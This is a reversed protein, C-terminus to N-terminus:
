MVVMMGNKMLIISKLLRKEKRLINVIQFLLRKMIQISLRKIGDFYIANINSIICFEIDRSTLKFNYIVNADEEYGESGLYTVPEDIIRHVYKIIDDPNSHQVDDRSNCGTLFITIFIIIILLVKKKKDM